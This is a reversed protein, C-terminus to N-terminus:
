RLGRILRIKKESKKRENKKWSGYLSGSAQEGCGAPAGRRGRRHGRWRAQGRGRRGHEGSRGGAVGVARPRLRRARRLV